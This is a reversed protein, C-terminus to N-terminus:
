QDLNGAETVVKENSMLQDIYKTAQEISEKQPVIVSASIGGMSYCPQSQPEGLIQYSQIDWSPM